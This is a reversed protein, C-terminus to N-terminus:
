HYPITMLVSTGKGPATRYDLEGKLMKIRTEINKLGIGNRQKLEMDFGKGDDEVTIYLQKNNNSIQVIVNKAEAHKIINQLLEQIIRFIHVSKEENISLDKTDLATFSVPIGSNLTANNCYDRLSNELGYKLLADSAMNHSINRLEKISENLKDLNAHFLLKQKDSLEFDKTMASFSHKIGSLMSGLGDHLERAMKTREQEIAIEKEMLAKHRLFKNRYYTRIFLWSLAIITAAVTIRFWWTLYWPTQITFKFPEQLIMWETDGKYRARVMFTYDGPGLSNYSAITSNNSVWDKDAGTLQYSYEIGKGGGPDL